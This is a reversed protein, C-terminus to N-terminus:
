TAPIFLAVTGALPSVPRTSVDRPRLPPHPRGEGGTSCCTSWGAGEYTRGGARCHALVDASTCGAHELAVALEPLRDFARDNHVTEAVAVVELARWSPDPTVPRFPNGFVERILECQAASEADRRANWKRRARGM